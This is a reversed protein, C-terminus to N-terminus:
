PLQDFDTDRHAMVKDGAAEGYKDTFAALAAGMIDAAQDKGLEETNVECLTKYLHGVHYTWPMVVSKGPRIAMKWGLGVVKPLTLNADRFLFDCCEAGNSLTGNVELVLDENFGPVIARDIEMCFYRGYEMLDNEAWAVYWPCEFVQTRGHPSRELLKTQMKGKGVRTEAYALYNGVTLPHGNAEVRMAMRRGRQNGYRVVAQRIIREGEEEGVADVVARSIWAMMLAHHTPTFEEATQTEMVVEV